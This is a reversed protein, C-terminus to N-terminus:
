DARHKYPAPRSALVLLRRARNSSIGPLGISEAAHNYADIAHQMARREEHPDAQAM